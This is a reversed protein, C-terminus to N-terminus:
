LHLLLLKSIDRSNLFHNNVWFLVDLDNEM